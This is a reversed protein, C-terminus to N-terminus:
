GPYYRDFLESDNKWAGELNKGIMEAWREVVSLGSFFGVEPVMSITDELIGPVNVNTNYNTLVVDPHQQCIDEERKVRDYDMEIPLEMDLDSSFGSDQSFNMIGIKVIEMGADLAAQLIWDLNRNFTIIMLRRGTLTPIVRQMRREYIKRHEEILDHIKESVHFYTSLKELWQCTKPFGVPFDDEFFKSEYEKEFFEQLIKGTYDKYALLNLQATKFNKISEYSTDYLFRCNVTVGMRALYGKIIQFNAEANTAVTKEFIINVTNPIVKANPDIMQRALETYALLMGQMYDGALNGDAKVTIVPMDATALDRIEDIDDGIIGAPCSSIVILAKPNRECIEEAKERLHEMGGFIMQSETMDTAELNPSLSVGLLAGREFMRRRGSSSISQFAFYTCSKPSHGLVVADRVHVCMSMAGNFACGFLPENHVMNKSLYRNPSTLDVSSGTTVQKTPEKIEKAPETIARSRASGLILEELAHDTLPKAEYLTIGNVLRDALDTFISAVDTDLGDAASREVVTRNDAEAFAFANSRPIKAFIPLDVANAFDMVRQDENEVNRCNYLIGAVRCKEHDYNRIGRLINNAAYLSMFEGSTVLFIIDAYERRIPVAFGGCVVDGLVDYLTIDYQERIHFQDLLEFSTIIGRGACGVGPKPGGAEACGIGNFGHFLVDEIRYDAPGTVRIYDLVTTIDRGHMLLRTSDHKPDCGIQLVSKGTLSLAASINASMTSKGIGGKGYVAIQTM